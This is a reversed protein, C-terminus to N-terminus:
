RMRRARIGGYAFLGGGSFTAQAVLQVTTSAAFSYRVPMNSLTMASNGAGPTVSAMFGGSTRGNTFDLTNATSSIGAFFQTIATSTSTNLGVQGTIDWDGASVAITTVTKASSTALTVPSGVAIFSEIEEGINGATASDNTSSGILGGNFNSAISSLAGGNFAVLVSSNFAVSATFIAPAVSSYAVSGQFTTPSAFISTATSAVAINGSFAVSGTFSMATGTWTNSDLLTGTSDIMDQVTSRLIAPTIAGTTNDAFNTTQETSLASRTKSTM